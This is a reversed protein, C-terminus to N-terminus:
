MRVFWMLNWTNKHQKLEREIDKMRIMDWAANSLLTTFAPVIVEVGFDGLGWPGCGFIADNELTVAVANAILPGM